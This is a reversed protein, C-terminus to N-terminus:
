LIHTMAETHSKTVTYAKEMIIDRKLIAIEIQLLSINKLM